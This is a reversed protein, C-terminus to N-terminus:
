RRTPASKKELRKAQEILSGLTDQMNQLRDALSSRAEGGRTALCGHEILGLFVAVIDELQDEEPHYWRHLWACMGMIAQVLLREDTKRFVGQEMGERLIDELGAAHRQRVEVLQQRLAPPLDGEERYFVSFLAVNEGMIQVMYRVARCLKEEPPLPAALIPELVRTFTAGVKLFIKCLLEQKNEFYHYMSAKSLGAQQAIEELTTQRYGGSAFQQAAIDLLHAEVVERRSRVQTEVTREPTGKDRGQPTEVVEQRSM